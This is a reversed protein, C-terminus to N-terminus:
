TIYSHDRAFSINKQATWIKANIQNASKYFKFQVFSLPERYYTAVKWMVESILLFFQLM